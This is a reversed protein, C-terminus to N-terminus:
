DRYPKYIGEGEPEIYQGADFAKKREETLARGGIEMYEETLRDYVADFESESAMISKIMLEQYKKNLVARYKTESELIVTYFPDYYGDVVAVRAGQEKLEGYREDQVRLSTFYKEMSGYDAGNYIISLDTNNWKTLANYDPDITVPVDEVLRYHEGEVGFMLERGVEKDAMWNMYQVAETANKSFAPIMIYMAAPNYLRKPTHGAKNKFPDVAILEAEPNNALLAGVAGNANFGVNTDRAFFGARGASIHEDFKKNDNQLAFEKDLLGENYLKNLYRVGERYGPYMIQPLTFFEEKTMDEVFSYVLHLTNQQWDEQSFSNATLPYGVVNEKGVGGPDKEKFQKIMEYVDERSQPIDLGLKDLWDKRVYSTFQGPYSRAAPIGYLKDDVTMYDLIGGLMEKLQPGEKDILTTLDTLGKQQVFSNFITRDYTFIIDPAQKSAMLMNLMEVEQSRQIPHFKVTINNQKGFEDNIWQTWRNDDATEGNAPANGREFVEVTLTKNSATNETKGNGCGAAATVLLALAAVMAAARMGKKM